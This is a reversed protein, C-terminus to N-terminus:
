LNILLGAMLEPGKKENDFYHRRISSIALMLGSFHWLQGCCALNSLPYHSGCNRNHELVAILDGVVRGMIVDATLLM